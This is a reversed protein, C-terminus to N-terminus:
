LKKEKGENSFEGETTKQNLIQENDDNEGLM